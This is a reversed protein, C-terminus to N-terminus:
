ICVKSEGGQCGLLEVRMGIHLTWEVPLIRVYQSMTPTAFTNTVVTNRDSNGIFMQTLFM